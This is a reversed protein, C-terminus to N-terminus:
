QPPETEILGTAFWAMFRHSYVDRAKASHKVPRPANGRGPGAAVVATAAAVPGELAPTAGRLTM